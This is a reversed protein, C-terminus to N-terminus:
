PSTLMGPLASATVTTDQWVKIMVGLDSLSEGKVPRKDAPDRSLRGSGNLDARPWVNEGPANPTAPSIVGDGNLDEAPGIPTGEVQHLAAKFKNFDAMDVRGDGTLDALDKLAEPRCELLAAFADIRPAPITAAPRNTSRVRLIDLVQEVTLKPNYAYMLAVLGTVQPAAQSTGMLVSYRNSRPNGFDDFVAESLILEGPASLSGGVNSFTSRAGSRGVSEVVVVNRAPAGSGDDNLAAWNLPSAWQSDVVRSGRPNAVNHSSDNGAASVIIIQKKAALDALVRLILGHAKVYDKIESDENPNRSLLKFWQYGVSCNIVKLGPVSKILEVLTAALDSIIVYALPTEGSRMISTCVTIRAFPTTGDTGIKNFKAGIIGTVHNGHDAPRRPSFGAEEFELDEHAAFGVDLVGVRVATDGRARIANNFNWAAPLRDLKQWYNGDRGAAEPSGAGQRWDCFFYGQYDPDASRGLCDHPVSPLQTAGVLINPAASRVISERRLKRVAEKLAGVEADAGPSAPSADATRVVFLGIEPVRSDRAETLSNAQFLAEIQTPTAEPRFQLLIRNKQIPLGQGPDLGPANSSGIASANKNKLSTDYAFEVKERTRSAPASPAPTAAALRASFAEYPDSEQARASPHCAIGALMAAVYYKRTSLPRGHNAHM